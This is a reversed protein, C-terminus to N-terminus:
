PGPLPGSPMAPADPSRPWRRWAACGRRAPASRRASASAIAHHSPPGMAVRPPPPPPSAASDSIREMEALVRARHRDHRAAFPRQRALVVADGFALAETASALSTRSTGATVALALRTLVRAQEHEDPQRGIRGAGVPSREPIRAEDDGASDRSVLTGPTNAIRPATWRAPPSWRRRARPPASTAASGGAACRRRKPLRLHAVPSWGSRWGSRPLGASLHCFRGSGDLSRVAILINLLDVRERIGYAWRRRRRRRLARDRKRCAHFAAPPICFSRAAM